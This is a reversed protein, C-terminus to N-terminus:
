DITFPVSTSSAGYHPSGAFSAALDYTICASTSSRAPGECTAQSPTQTPTLTAQAIGDKNTIAAVSQAGLTFTVTEGPVGTGATTDSLDAMLSIPQGWTASTPGSYSLTTSHAEVQFVVSSFAPAYGDGGAFSVVLTYGGPLASPTFSVEANGSAGTIAGTRQAGVSFSVPEGPIAQGSAPDTLTAALAIQQGWRGAHPGAYAIATPTGIVFPASLSAAALTASGAYSITLTYNGLPLGLDLTASAEGSANTTASASLSGLSFVLTAGSIPEGSTAGTIIAFLTTAQGEGGGPPGAYTLRTPAQASCAGPLVELTASAWTGQALAM